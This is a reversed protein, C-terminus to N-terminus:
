PLIRPENQTPSFRSTAPFGPPQRNSKLMTPIGRQARSSLKFVFVPALVVAVALALAVALVLAVALDRAVVLDLAIPTVNCTILRAAFLKLLVM